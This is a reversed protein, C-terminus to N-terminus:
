NKKFCGMKKFFTYFRDSMFFTMAGGSGGDKGNKEECCCGRGLLRIERALKDLVALIEEALPGGFRLDLALDIM